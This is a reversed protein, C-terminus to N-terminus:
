LAPEGAMFVHQINLHEDLVLIDARKGVTLSGREHFEGVARAPIDTVCSLAAQIPIGISVINKLCSLLGASGGALTGDRLRSVGGQVLITEGNKTYEGDPMGASFISDSVLAVRGAFMSFAARMASPHIHVGDAILEVFGAREHAAGILGPARHLLPPCANFIHTVNKAGALFAAMATEYDCDTHGLSVNAGLRAAGAIFELAGPLEPAVTVIRVPAIDNIHELLEMDAPALASLEHAGRKQPSLFPGELNLGLLRSDYQMFRRVGKAARAISESDASMTTALFSTVGNKMHFDAMHELSDCDADMVDCMIAGHTHIDIFGPSIIPAGADASGTIKIREIRDGFEIECGVLGLGPM